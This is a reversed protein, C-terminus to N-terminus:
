GCTYHHHGLSLRDEGATNAMWHHAFVQDPTYRTAPDVRLLCRILDKAGDSVASWFEDPFSYVGGQALRIWM